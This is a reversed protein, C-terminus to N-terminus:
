RDLLCHDGLTAEQDHVLILYVVRVHQALPGHGFDVQAVVDSSFPIGICDECNLLDGGVGGHYGGIGQKLLDIQEPFYGMRVDQLVDICFFCGIRQKEEDLVAIFAGQLIENELLGLFETLYYYFPEYGLHHDGELEQLLLVDDMSVDFWLVNENM